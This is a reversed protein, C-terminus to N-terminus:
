YMTSRAIQARELARLNALVSENRQRPAPAPARQYFARGCNRTFDRTAVRHTGITGHNYGIRSLDRYVSESRANSNAFSDNEFSHHPPSPKPRSTNAKATSALYSMAPDGVRPLVGRAQFTPSAVSSRSKHMHKQAEQASVNAKDELPQNERVPTGPQANHGSRQLYINDSHRHNKTSSARSQPSWNMDPTKLM